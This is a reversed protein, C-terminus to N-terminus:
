AIQHNAGPASGCVNLLTAVVGGNKFTFLVPLWSFVMLACGVLGLTKYRIASSSLHVASPRLAAVPDMSAGRRAPIYAAFISMLIGAWVGQIGLNLNITPKVPSSVLDQNIIELTQSQTYVLLYRALLLGLLAGPLSLLAAEICFHFVVNRRIVGLARILGVEKRRQAVSIGIANYIIFMGVSLAVLGSLELGYRLPRIFARLRDGVQQPREVRAYSGIVASIRRAVKSPDQGKKLAVDIRDVLTGRAFSIQAADLFMVAVQGGFSAAPGSDDLIGRVHFTKVGEATLLALPSDRKLNKRVALKKSILIATPDNAFALPDDVVDKEGGGKDAKFPLFYTDGLFDVGLVLLPMQDDACRTTSELTAAAHAVGEIEAIQALLGNDIGTGTVTLDAGGSVREILEEFSAILSRSTAQSAV